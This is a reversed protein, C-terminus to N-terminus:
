TAAVTFQARTLAEAGTFDATSDWWIAYTYQQGPTATIDVHSGWMQLSGGNGVGTGPAWSGIRSWGTSNNAPPSFGAYRGFTPGPTQTVGTSFNNYIGSANLIVPGNGAVVSIYTPSAPYQYGIQISGSTWTGGMPAGRVLGVSTGILEGHFQQYEDNAAGYFQTSNGSYGQVQAYDTTGNLYMVCSGSMTDQGTSALGGVFSYFAGNKTFRANKAGVQVMVTASLRYYGPITPQFKGTAVTFFNFPDFVRTDFLITTWTSVPVGTQNSALKAAFVVGQPAVGARDKIRGDSGM